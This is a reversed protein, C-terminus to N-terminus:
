SNNHIALIAILFHQSCVLHTPPPSPYPNCSSPSASIRYSLITFFNIHPPLRPPRRMFNHDQQQHIVCCLWCSIFVIFVIFVRAMFVRTMFVRAMFVRTVFVRAMFVCAMFVCVMFVCVMFVRAMFVRAMFVRAMFVRAMFVRAM